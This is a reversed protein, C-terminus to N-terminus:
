TYHEAIDAIRKAFEVVDCGKDIFDLAGKDRLTKVTEPLANASWLIIKAAKNIGQFEAFLDEATFDPLVMDLLIFDIRKYHEKFHKLASVGDPFADVIFGIEELAAAAGNRVIEVDEVIMLTANRKLGEIDKERIEGPSPISSVPLYISMTTGIGIETAVSIAGKHEKITGYVAALGLGNGTEKTSFFPEFIHNVLSTEIGSGTDKVATCVYLGPKIEYDSKSCYKEDLQVNETSFTLTGGRPMADRSNFALNLLANEIQGPDGQITPHRANLETTIHIKKDISHELISAIGKITAHLDIGVSSYKGKRAFALLQKTLGSSQSASKMIEEACKKIVPNAGSNRKIIQANAAIGFFQNKYDHAIGGALQGMAQLKESQRLQELLRLREEEAKKRETSDRLVGSVKIAGAEKIQRATITCYIVSSNKNRIQLEYDSIRDSTELKQMIAAVANKEICIEQINTNLLAERQYLSISAISPSIELFLGDRTIEFYVDQINEFITRFKSENEKLKEYIQSIQDFQDQLKRQNEEMLNIIAYPDRFRFLFFNRIVQLINPRPTWQISYICEPADSRAACSIETLRANRLGKLKGVVFTCGKKYDCMQPSYRSRDIPRFYINVEGEEPYDMRVDFNRNISKKFHDGIKKAILPIPSIRFFLLQFPTAKNLMIEQGIDFLVGPKNGFAKEINCALKTWTFGDIWELPDELTERYAEIGDFIQTQPIGKERAYGILEKTSYCSLDKNTPM